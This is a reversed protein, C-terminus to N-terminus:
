PYPSDEDPDERSGERGGSNKSTGPAEPKKAVSNADKNRFDEGTILPTFVFRDFAEQVSNKTSGSVAGQKAMIIQLYEKCHIRRGIEYAAAIDAARLSNIATLIHRDIEGELGRTKVEVVKLLRILAEAYNVYCDTISAEQPCTFCRDLTTQDIYGDFIDLAKELGRIGDSVKKWCRSDQGCDETQVIHTVQDAKDALFQFEKCASHETLIHCLKVPHKHHHHHFHDHPHLHGYSHKHTKHKHRYLNRDRENPSRKEWSGLGSTEPIALGPVVCLATLALSLRM